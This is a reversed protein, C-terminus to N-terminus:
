DLSVPGPEDVCPQPLVAPLRPASLKRSQKAKEFRIRKGAGAAEFRAKQAKVYRGQKEILHCRRGHKLAAAGTTGVGAFPDLVCEGPLTALLVLREYL